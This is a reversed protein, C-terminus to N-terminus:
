MVNTVLPQSYPLFINKSNQAPVGQRQSGKYDLEPVAQVQSDAEVAVDERGGVSTFRELRKVEKQSNCSQGMTPQLAKKETIRIIRFTCNPCILPM